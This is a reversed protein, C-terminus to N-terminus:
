TMWHLNIQWGLLNEINLQNNTILYHFFFLIGLATTVGRPPSSWFHKQKGPGNPKALLIFLVSAIFHQNTGYESCSGRRFAQILIFSYADEETDKNWLVRPPVIM